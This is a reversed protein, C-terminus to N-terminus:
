GQAKVLAFLVWLMHSKKKAGGVRYIKIVM